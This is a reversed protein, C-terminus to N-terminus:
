ISKIPHAEMFALQVALYFFMFLMNKDEQRKIDEVNLVFFRFILIIFLM